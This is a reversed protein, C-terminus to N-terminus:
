QQYKYLLGCSKKKPKLGGWIIPHCQEGPDDGYESISYDNDSCSWDCGDEENIWAQDTEDLDSDQNSDYSNGAESYDGM